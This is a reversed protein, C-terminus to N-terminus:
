LRAVLSCFVKLFFFFLQFFESKVRLQVMSNGSRESSSALDLLFLCKRPVKQKTNETAKRV